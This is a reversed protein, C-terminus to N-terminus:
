TKFLSTASPPYIDQNLSRQANDRWSASRSEGRSQYWKEGFARVTNAKAIKKQVKETKKAAAPSQGKAVLKRAKALKDRADELSIEPYLGIALTEGVGAIRYNYRWSEAGNPTIFLYLGDRDGLKYPKEKAKAEKCKKDTLM